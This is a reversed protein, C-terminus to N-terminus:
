ENPPEKNEIVEYEAEVVDKRERYALMKRYRELGIPGFENLLLEETAGKKILHALLDVAVQTHDIVEVKAEVKQVVPDTRSLIMEAAKLKSRPDFSALEQLVANVADGAGARLVNKAEEVLADAVHPRSRIRHGHVALTAPSGKFGALRAAAANKQGALIAKVFLQEQPNCLMMAPGLNDAKSPALAQRITDEDAEQESVSPPSPQGVVDLIGM